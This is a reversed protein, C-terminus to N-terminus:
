CNATEIQLNYGFAEHVMVYSVKSLSTDSEQGGVGLMVYGEKRMERSRVLRGGRWAGCLTASLSRQGDGDPVRGRTQRHARAALGVHRDQHVLQLLAGQQGEDGLRDGGVQSDVIDLHTAIAAGRAAPSPLPSNYTAGRLGRQDTSPM